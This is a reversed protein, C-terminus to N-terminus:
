KPLSLVKNKLFCKEEKFVVEFFIQCMDSNLHLCLNIEFHM